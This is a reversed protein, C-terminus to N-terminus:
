GGPPALIVNYAPNSYGDYQEDFDGDSSWVFASRSSSNSEINACQMQSCIGVHEQGKSVVVDGCVAQAPSVIQWGAALLQTELDPVTYSGVGAYGATQLIQTVAAACACNGLHDPPAVPLGDCETNPWATSTGIFGNMAACINAANFVGPVLSPLPGPQSGPACTSSGVPICPLTGGPATPGGAAGAGVMAPLMVGIFLLVLLAAAGFLWKM